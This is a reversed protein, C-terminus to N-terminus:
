DNRGGGGQAKTRVILPKKSSSSSASLRSVSNKSSSSSASSRSVSYSKGTSKEEPYNIRSRKRGGVADPSTDALVGKGLVQNLDMQLSNRKASASQEFVV